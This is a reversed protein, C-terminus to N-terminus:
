CGLWIGHECSQIKCNISATMCSLGEKFYKIFIVVVNFNFSDYTFIVLFFAFNIADIFLVCLLNTQKM